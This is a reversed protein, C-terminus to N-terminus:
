NHSLVRVSRAGSLVLRSGVVLGALFFLIAVTLYDLPVTPMKTELAVTGTHTTGSM